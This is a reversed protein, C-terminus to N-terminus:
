YFYFSFQNLLFTRTCWMPQRILLMKMTLTEEPCLKLTDGGFRMKHLISSM